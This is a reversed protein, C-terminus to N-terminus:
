DHTAADDFRQMLRRGYLLGGYRGVCEATSNHQIIGYISKTRLIIEQEGWGAQWTSLLQLIRTCDNNIHHDSVNPPLSSTMSECSSQAYVTFFHFFVMLLTLLITKM